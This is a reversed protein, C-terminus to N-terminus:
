FRKFLMLLVCSSLVCTMTLGMNSGDVLGSNRHGSGGHSPVRGGFWRGGRIGGGKAAV